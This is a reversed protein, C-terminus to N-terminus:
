LVFTSGEDEFIIPYNQGPSMKQEAKYIEEKLSRMYSINKFVAQPFQRPFLKAYKELILEKYKALLGEIREQLEAELEYGPRLMEGSVFEQFILHLMFYNAHYLILAQEDKIGWVSDRLLKSMLRNVNCCRVLTHARLESNFLTLYPTRSVDEWLKSIERKAHTCLDVNANFCALSVTADELSYNKSDVTREADDRKFSYKIEDLLLERKLRSQTEDLSVFDKREIKNQTNTAITVTKEFNKPCNELSIIRLFVRAKEVQELNKTGVLNICGATQAGNIITIDDCQFRGSTRERGGIPLKVARKALITIGNNLYFFNEPSKLLTRVIQENIEGEGMFGRINQSFLRHTNKSYIDLIEKCSVSGYYATVPEEQKGWNQIEIEINIPEGDIGVVLGRHASSIDFEEFSILNSGENEKQMFEEITNKCDVSLNNGSHALIIRVKVKHDYLAERIVESMGRIKSNFKDLSCTLLDQIGNIFKLVEGKEPGGVGKKIWKSQEVYLIRKEKDYFLADIGNDDFGDTICGKLSEYPLGAICKLSFLSFARTLIQNNYQETGKTGCDTDDVFLIASRELEGKIHNLKISSM